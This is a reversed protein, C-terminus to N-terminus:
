SSAATATTTTTINNGIGSPNSPTEGQHRLRDLIFTNTLEYFLPHNEDVLFKIHRM